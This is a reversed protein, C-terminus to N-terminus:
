QPYYELIELLTDETLSQNTAIWIVLDGSQFYFHDQGMGTLEYISRDEIIRVGVPTFPSNNSAISTEMQNVMRSAFYDFATGSVWLQIQGETGYVGISGSTLPFQNRHMHNIEQIAALGKTSSLLPYGSIEDPLPASGPNALKSQYSGILITAAM